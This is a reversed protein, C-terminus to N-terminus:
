ADGGETQKRYLIIKTLFYITMCVAFVATSISFCFFILAPFPANDSSFGLLIIMILLLTLPWLFWVSIFSMRIAKNQVAADLEDFDPEAPSQKKRPLLLLTLAIFPLILPWHRLINRVIIEIQSPQPQFKFGPVPTAFFMRGAVFFVCFAIAILCNVLGFWANKQARNM